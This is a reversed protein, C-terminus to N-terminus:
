NRNGTSFLMVSKTGFIIFFQVFLLCFVASTIIMNNTKKENWSQDQSKMYKSLLICVELLHSTSCHYYLVAETGVTFVLPKLLALLCSHANLVVVAVVPLLPPSSPTMLSCRTISHLSISVVSTVGATTTELLDALKHHAM